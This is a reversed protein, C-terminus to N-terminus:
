ALREVFSTDIGERKLLTLLGERDYAKRWAEGADVIGDRILGFLADNLPVSGLRRGSEMAAGLQFLKGEAIISAAAPTNFLLERAAVRGGGRKRLLVQAVVARLSTSLTTLVHARRDAPVQEVLREIAQAAAPARLGALVFRGSEAAELVAAIMDPSRLEEVLLVDPDERLASRVAAVVDSAEGRVERQSLFSRRSEHVFGIQREITIVHDARTRNILDVFAAELTSKGSARPGAILVLGDPQGCLAQIDKSLGLQEVSIARAPLMRVIVGPGRHDRFSLCRVRGIEAVDRFWEPTEGSKVADRTPEPALALMLAEVDGASLAEEAELQQMEGDVRVAPRSQAVLYLGSAGRAAAVRLLREIAPAGAPVSAVPEPQARVTRALPLVVAPTPTEAELRIEELHSEEAQSEAVEGPEDVQRAAPQDPERAVLEPPPVQLMGSSALLEAVEAADPQQQEVEQVIEFPPEAREFPVGAVGSGTDPQTEAAEAAVLEQTRGAPADVRPEFAVVRGPQAASPPPPEPVAFAPPVQAAAPEEVPPEEASALEAIPAPLTAPEPAAVPPPMVTPTPEVAPAPEVVPAPEVAPAPATAPAPEAAAAPEMAPAPEAAVALEMAPAPEAAVALEMAPAPEAAVALEMAPAPEATAAPQAATAPQAAAAPAAVPEPEAVVPAVPKPWMPRIEVWIDDGGRAVVINFPPRDEVAPLENEVAGLERLTRVQEPTLLQDLMGVLTDITLFRTSLEVQGWALPGRFANMAASSTVVYPKEGTHLVLADGELRVIAGLLSDVLSM